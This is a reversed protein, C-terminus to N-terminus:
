KVECVRQSAEESGNKDEVMVVWMVTLSLVSFRLWIMDRWQEFAM